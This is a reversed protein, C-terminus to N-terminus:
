VAVDEVARVLRVAVERNPEGIAESEVIVALIGAIIGVDIGIIRFSGREIAGDPDRGGFRAIAVLAVDRDDGGCVHDRVPPADGDTVVSLRTREPQFQAAAIERRHTFGGEGDVTM